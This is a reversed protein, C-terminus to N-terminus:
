PLDAREVLYGNAITEAARRRVKDPAAILGREALPGGPAWMTAYLKLFDRLEPMADLHKKKVYLYLSRVGPYKGSAIDQYTPTVGDIPM